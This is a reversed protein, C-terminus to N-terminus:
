CGWAPWCPWDVRCSCAVLRASSRRRILDAELIRSLTTAVAISLVAAIDFPRGDSIAYLALPAFLVISLLSASLASPREVPRVGTYAGHEHGLALVAGVLYGAQIVFAVDGRREAGLLRASGITFIAFAGLAAIRSATGFVVTRSEAKM